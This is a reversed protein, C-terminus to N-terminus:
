ACQPLTFCFQAGGAPHNKAWLDGQQEKLLQQVITLGLGTGGPRRSYFPIGVSSLDSESLGHGQDSVTLLISSALIQWDIRIEGGQPSFSIANTLLNQLIQQLKWPDTSIRFPHHPYEITLEKAQLQPTLRDAVEELLQRLDHIETTQDAQQSQTLQSVDNALSHNLRQLHGLWNTAEQSLSATKLLDIYLQNLSIPTQLQHRIKQLCLKSRQEIFSYRDLEAQTRLTQAFLSLCYQDKESLPLDSWCCLYSTSGQSSYLQYIYVSHINPQDISASKLSLCCIMTSALQAQHNTIYDQVYKQVQKTWCCKPDILTQVIGAEAICGGLLGVQTVFQKLDFTASPYSDINDENIHTKSVQTIHALSSRNLPTVQGSM